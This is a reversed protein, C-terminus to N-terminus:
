VGFQLRQIAEVKKDDTSHLFREKTRTHSSKQDKSPNKRKKSVMIRRIGKDM